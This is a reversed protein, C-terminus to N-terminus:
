TLTYYNYSFKRWVVRASTLTAAISTCCLTGSATASSSVGSKRSTNGSLLIAWFKEERRVLVAHMILPAIAGNKWRASTWLMCNLGKANAISPELSLVLVSFIFGRVTRKNSWSHPTTRVCNKSIHKDDEALASPIKELISSASELWWIPHSFQMPMPRSLVETLM